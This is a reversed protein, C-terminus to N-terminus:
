KEPVGPGNCHSGACLRHRVMGAMVYVAMWVATHGSVNNRDTTPYIEVFDFGGIGAASGAMLIRSLEYTSLGNPDPPGGPNHAVDLVDSCVTIYITDTGNKLVEIAEAVAQDGGREKIEFSTIVKAGREKAIKLQSPNNRPGRIGMHVINKPDIRPHEYLRHLPSCRAYRNGGYDPMNDLHADLHLIGVKASTNEVMAEVIPVTVSHDGGFSFPVAGHTFVDAAKEYIMRFTKEYNGNATGADGYDCVKLYDFVDLEFEPLFGGYRISAERIAKPGLECGSFGKWTVVGEWPIGMVAVDYVSLAEAANVTSVGMFSPVGSYVECITQDAIFSMPKQYM